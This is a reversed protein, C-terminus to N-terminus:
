PVYYFGTNKFEISSKESKIIADTLLLPRQQIFSIEEIRKVGTDRNAINIEKLAKDREYSVAIEDPAGTIRWESEQFRLVDGRSTLSRREVSLIWDQTGVPVLKVYYDMKLYMGDLYDLDDLPTEYVKRQFSIGKMTYGVRRMRSVNSLVRFFPHPM